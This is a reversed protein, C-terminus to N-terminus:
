SCYYLIKRAEVVMAQKTNEFLQNKTLGTHKLINDVFKDFIYEKM